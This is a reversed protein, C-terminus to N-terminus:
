RHEQCLVEIVPSYNQHHVNANEYLKSDHDNNDCRFAECLSHVKESSFKAELSIDYLSM